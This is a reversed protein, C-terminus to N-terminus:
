DWYVNGDATVTFGLQKLITEQEEYTIDERSNLYNIIEYNYTDDSNYESKFLVLREGYDIDLSNIYKIKKEKATGVIAKGNKDKDARIEYLGKTISRYAVVDKSIAKSLTYKEPNNFAWNYADRSEESATYDKYSINNEQLFNYKEPYKSYFDFEEYGSFDGYNEMDVDEKRNVINNILINKKKVPLDLSDIYDFKDELKKQEKLGERYEWYDNIPMDVDIFEKIQKEKLPAIDNNFYTRANENAWQGFLGAKIKNETTDEIPFRLSGSETYSGSIPLDDDFMSLGQVTKKIQGYGTPLLYYPLAEALIEGRPKEGYEDEGYVFEKIPLASSIPIRGGGTIVSAYPLDELLNLFGQEINDLVTDESDEEDDFGFVKILTEVVDFAPNYGVVKEFATGFLHQAIALQTFTSAMKASTKANRLLKNQVEENSAKSEQITDYFQSDLLNRVELQFKTILGAAKSNFLQPQQGLSRDGMTRSAWKDAENVADEHSMGKRVYENYKTRVILETSINDVAGMLVQGADAVKQYPTRYFVDAGNRRLMTPNNEMFGDSKGFISSIKNSATQTFAKFFDAKNTRAFTEVVPLFNTGASSVNLGVMNSGVQKNVTNLFTLARRGILGELGRDMLSTKGAIVNAEENLFKAFTSLHSNYVQAVREQFEEETMGSLDELGHAQGYKDAIYNRLARLNQIDDIHYIQNKASSLYRELGGLLDHSTKKGMRRKASAFYPQGPELDATVGNLDTPLDKARIDNPNFPLGLRSFTDDMARFHLFYDKRRPIEPYVNRLRSDNIADLTDDYIQRIKPDSALGIIRMRVNNDPFDKALEEDGYKIVKNDDDVYFGEAYMQAAASEKSGPKIKYENSLQALIGTKRNTYGDLWKIGESENQAIKNVTIDSLINGEKYGLAKDMVRQPTNDVTAFTSLNKANELVKDFDYGKKSFEAKVNDMIKRHVESRATPHGRKILDKRKNANELRKTYDADVDARSRSLREIRRLINNAVKTDKNKKAEYENQLKTIKDTYSDYSDQKLQELNAIETEANELKSTPTEVVEKVKKKAKKKFKDKIIPEAVPAQELEADRVNAQEETLPAIDPQMYKSRAEDNYETIQKENLLNIYELNPEKRKGNNMFDNYGKRLRNDLVFEIRKSIANNEAGDDEIIANLGKLLDDKDYKFTDRLYALDESTDRKTGWSGEYASDYDKLGQTPGLAHREGPTSFQLELLMSLAEDQFFPKVEPNEYMYANTKRQRGITDIDRDALPSEPIVINEKSVPGQPNERAQEEAWARIEDDEFLWAPVEDSDIYSQVLKEFEDDTTEVPAIDEQEDQVDYQVVDQVLNPKEQVLPAFGQELAVDKGYVNYNGYPATIQERNSLSFKYDEFQNVVRQRDGEVDPNYEAISYGKNLLEQKLKADANYPIVYVGVEDLGVARQPKAEFYGTPMSAIDSVLSIIDDVTQATVKNNWKQLYSLMSAKTKTSRVADVVLNAASDMAIYPNRENDDKISNAIEILRNSYSKKLTKYEEESIEGLRNSDSKIDDISKYKKQSAAFLASSPDTADAGTQDQSKMVKIVNELTNEWHLADWSRRTGSRTLTDTNNRIGTKEEVGKFLSDIWEKYGDSAKEKIADTRAEYDPEVTITVGGNNLYVRADKVYGLLEISSTKDIANKVDEEHLGLKEHLYSGFASKIQESYKKFYEIRHNRLNAGEQAKSERIVDEGLKDVFWQSMEKQAETAEKRVEKTIPEVKGKGSDELYLQMMDINNYLKQLMADEGGDRNLSSELNDDVYRQLPRVADYGLKKSLESYKDKIRQEVKDNPKYEITPYVPTWADGGYVKNDKSKKPDISDKNLILSVDGYKDFNQKAKIIAISPMPLGGLKLSKALEDTSMNHVAILDKTEEVSKSLSFRIDASSTPTTNDINKIQEPDYAIYVRHRTDDAKNFRGGGIHTLGDYGMGTISYWAEEYADHRTYEYDYFYEKMAKFCDENTESASFDADPFAKQWEEINATADMDMPNKINLYVEYVQKNNGKGKNTYSEAVSKNDTFYSGQGFLGFNSGYTDFVTYGGDATGHYMVKLNGNEDRVKSDKFYEQQEKTLEKGNSDTLSYRIDSKKNDFTGKNAVASKIQNSEFVAWTPATSEIAKISDYGHKKLLDVMESSNVVQWLKEPKGVKKWVSKLEIAPIDLKSSVNPLAEEFSLDTNGFDAPNEARIYAPIVRDISGGFVKGSPAIDDLKNTPKSYGRAYLPESSLWMGKGKSAFKTFRSNTGHYLLLPEGNQNVAKSEGFWSKFNDTETKPRNEVIEDVMKQNAQLWGTRFISKEPMDSYQRVKEINESISYKKDAKTDTSTDTNSAAEKYAKDFARKVKELQRAEKSGATAIKCLYKIEDYIRKFINPKETSLNNIFDKDTFLYDGVLDATVEHGINVNEVNSDNYLRVIEDRRTFYEGKTKAYEKVANQLENYHETGELTHTIEHGVVSNLSKNSDINVAINGDKVYGNVTKGEVAVGSEKLKKNNTFDFTVGKDASIKAVLDVFEHTRNSNNLIGSETAKKITDQQKADYKTLDAQFAQSRRTQENYSESLKNGIALESVESSLQSRVKNKLGSKEMTELQKRLETLKEQEKVTIQSFPKNELEEIEKKVANERETMNKYTEYTKGGIASEITDTSIYGKELDNVVEDYIKNKEKTSLKKGEETAEKIRNEYEKDVVKQENQSLGTIFDTGSKNAERLSGQTMGPVYGSQAIGSTISGVIFQDLLDEDEILQSLEKDSMYTVKKGVAQAIGSLVEETGEAGAKIGFETFNKAIQNTFKSSIKKALMDDASSLGKSLGLAKVSKGLGGFLLETAAEATGAIAGYTFAEKDSAGSRYAESMGSGMSSLGTAGTTIAAAVGAGAGAAGALGGTGIIALVQGLGETVSDSKNGLISYKDVKDEAKKWANSTWDKIAKKRLNTAYKDKGLKDAVEAVGYSGLDVIGEGMRTIGKGVGVGVDGVTGLITEGLDGFFDGVGTVGDSFGGSKFWSNKNGGTTKKVPAIDEEKKKKKKTTTKTTNKVVKGKSNITYTSQKEKGKKIKGDESIYYHAM